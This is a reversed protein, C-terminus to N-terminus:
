ASHNYALTGTHILLTLSHQHYSQLEWALLTQHVTPFCSAKTKKWPKCCEKAARDIRGEMEGVCKAGEGYWCLLTHTLIHSLYLETQGGRAHKSGNVACFYNGMSCSLVWYQAPKFRFSCIQENIKLRVTPMLSLIATGNICAHNPKIITSSCHYCHGCLWYTGEEEQELWEKNIFVAPWVLSFTVIDGFVNPKWSKWCAHTHVVFIWALGDM